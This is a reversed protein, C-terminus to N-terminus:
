RSGNIRAELIKLENIIQDFTPPKEFFMESMQLYDEKLLKVRDAKPALRLTGFNAEEYKAWAASFFINKHEAVRQLLESQNLARELISTKSIKYTDYYHRSMRTPTVRDDPQHYLMHLITAKEWFTREASLVRVCVIQDAMANKVHQAVYSIVQSQEVPWHDSRAGLEVKVVPRLYTSSENLFVSPYQFLITQQDSDAPDLCINWTNIDHLVDAISNKLGPMIIKIITEQCAQQLGAIRRKKEKNSSSKEPDNDGSYGLYDREISIDVDESFRKIVNYVKSLSTGGKFTLHKGIGELLFLQKLIWCVWFDKEVFEIVLGMQDTVREFYALRDDDSLCAFANM